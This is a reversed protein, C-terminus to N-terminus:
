VYAPHALATQVAVVPHLIRSATLVEHAATWPDLSQWFDYILMGRAGISEAQACHEALLQRYGAGDAPVEGSFGEAHTPCLALVDLPAAARTADAAARM